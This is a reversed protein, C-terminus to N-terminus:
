IFQINNNVDLYRLFVNQAPMTRTDSMMGRQFRILGDESIAETNGQLNLARKEGNNIQYAVPILRADNVIETDVFVTSTNQDCDKSSLKINYEIDLDDINDLDNRDLDDGSISLETSLLDIAKLSICM